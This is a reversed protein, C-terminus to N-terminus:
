KRGYANMQPEKERNKDNNGCKQNQSHQQLVYFKDNPTGIQSILALCFFRAEEFYIYVM